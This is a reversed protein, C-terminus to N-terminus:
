LRPATVSEPSDSVSGSITNDGSRDKSNSDRSKSEDSYMAALNCAGSKTASGTERKETRTCCLCIKSLWFARVNKDRATMMAFIVFGQLSASICFMYQFVIRADDIALFGFIWSLGLVCFCIFSARINVVTQSRSMSTHKSMDKRRCLSVGVVIFIVINTLVILGVPIVFSYYFAPLSMWCYKNGGKYLDPDIILVIAVPIVPLGWAPISTKWMYHSFYTNMVKVFLLYQMIGEMLMWMFSSMILYHLLVAVAICGAHSSTQTVGALFVVWSMLLALCLQFLTQQPRGQRVLKILLFSLISLSLGIISLSLGVISIITM